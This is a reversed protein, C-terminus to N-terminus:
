SDQKSNLIEEIQKDNFGYSSLLTKLCVKTIGKIINMDASKQLFFFGLFYLVYDAEIPADLIGLIPKFIHLGCLILVGIGSLLGAIIHIEWKKARDKRITKKYVEMISAIGFIELTLFLIYVLLQIKTM